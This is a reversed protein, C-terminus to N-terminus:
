VIPRADPAVWLMHPWGTDATSPREKAAPPWPMLLDRVDAKGAASRRHASPSHDILWGSYGATALPEVCSELSEGRRTLAHPHCELLVYRYRRAALGRAMGALVESETGEVDIKVLDVVGLALSENDAGVIQASAAKVIQADEAKVFQDLLDDLAVTVGSFDAREATEAMRSLGLNGGDQPYDIFSAVGTTAAAGVELVRVQALDNARVNDRLISALRPHPELAVLGGTTGILHACVLTFYGWNAGVDLVTMGPELIRTALVTEQPEYRGTFCAERSITDRLDCYFTAAGLDAPLRAVFPKRGLRGLFNTARYRGFPLARVASASLSVWLPPADAM